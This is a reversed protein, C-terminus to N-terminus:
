SFLELYKKKIDSNNHFNVALQHAGDTYVDYELQNMQAMQKIAATFSDISNLPLDWGANQQQLNRWPTQDSIIVPRGASFSEYIAHGFNEGQTPLVLVHNKLILKELENPEVENLFIVSINQPLNQIINTCSQWYNIDELVGVITCTINATQRQLANLLFDLNKIPHIRGIFIIKLNHEVKEIEIMKNIPKTPCNNVLIIEAKTNIEKQIAKVEIVDTAQFRIENYLGNLKAFSLFIKKKFPKFNLATQKLMGRPALVIKINKFKRKQLLVDISFHKSFISNLYIFDPVIEHVAKLVNQKTQYEPSAYYISINIKYEVWKNCVISSYANQMGLDRDSTYIFIEYDNVLLEVFNVISKIPGGARFGPSFWDVCVFIKKLL